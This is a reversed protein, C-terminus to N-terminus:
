ISEHFEQQVLTYDIEIAQKILENYEVDSMNEFRDYLEQLVKTGFDM